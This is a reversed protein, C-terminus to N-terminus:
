HLPLVVSEPDTLRPEFGLPGTAELRRRPLSRNQWGGRQPKTYGIENTKRVADTIQKGRRINHHDVVDQSFSVLATSGLNTRNLGSPSLLRSQSEGGM